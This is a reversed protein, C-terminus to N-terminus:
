NAEVMVVGDDGASIRDKASEDLSGFVYVLGNHLEINGTISVNGQIYIVPTSHCNNAMNQQGNINGSIIISNGVMRMLSISGNAVRSHLFKLFDARSSIKAIEEAIGEECPPLNTTGENYSGGTSGNSNGALTLDVTGAIEATAGAALIDVPGEIKGSSGITLSETVSLSFPYFLENRITASVSLNQAFVAMSESTLSVDNNIVSGSGIDTREAVAVVAKSMTLSSGPLKISADHTGEPVGAAKLYLERKNSFTQDLSVDVTGIKLKAADWATKTTPEPFKNGIIAVLQEVESLIVYPINTFVEPTFSANSSKKTANTLESIKSGRDNYQTGGCYSVAITGALLGALKTTRRLRLSNGGSLLTQIPLM